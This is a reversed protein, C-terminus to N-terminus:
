SSLRLTRARKSTPRRKRGAPLSAAGAARGILASIGTDGNCTEGSRVQCVLFGDDGIANPADVTPVTLRSM